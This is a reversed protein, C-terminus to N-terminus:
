HITRGNRKINHIFFGCVPQHLSTLGISGLDKYGAGLVTIYSSFKQFNYAMFTLLTLYLFHLSSTRTEVLRPGFICWQVVYYDRCCQLSHLLLTPLPAQKTLLFVLKSATMKTKGTDNTFCTKHLAGSFLELGIIAYIILCFIVLLAIHLLPIMAMIIANLVIQLGSICLFICLIVQSITSALKTFYGPFYNWALSPTFSLSLCYLFPLIYCPYWQWWFPMWCWKCVQFITHPKLLSFIVFLSFIFFYFNFLFWLLKAIKFYSKWPHIHVTYLHLWM